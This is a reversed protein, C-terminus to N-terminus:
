TNRLVMALVTYAILTFLPSAIALLMAITRVIISEIGFYQAIGGCVGAIRADTSSRRLSVQRMGKGRLSVDAFRGTRSAVVVYVGLFILLAPIAIQSARRFWWLLTAWWSTYAGFLLVVGVAVLVSGFVIWARDRKSCDRFRM